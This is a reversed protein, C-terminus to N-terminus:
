ARASRLAPEAGLVDVLRERADLWSRNLQVHGVVAADIEAVLSLEVHRSLADVLDAVVLGDAAFATEVM